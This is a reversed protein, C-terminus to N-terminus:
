PRKLGNEFRKPDNECRKKRKKPTTTTATTTTTTTTSVNGKDDDGDIKALYLRPHFTEPVKPGEGDRREMFLPDPDDEYDGALINVFINRVGTIKVEISKFVEENFADSHIDLM